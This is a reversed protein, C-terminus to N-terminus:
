KLVLEDKDGFNEYNSIIVIDGEALGNFGAMGAGLTVADATTDNLSAGIPLPQWDPRLGYREDLLIQVLAASTRSGEDLAITRIETAPRRFFLKVSLVPGRCGICADPHHSVVGTEPHKRM